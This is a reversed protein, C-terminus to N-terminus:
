NILGGDDDGRGSDLMVALFAFCIAGLIAFCYIPQSLIFFWAVAVFSIVFTVLIAITSILGGGNKIVCISYLWVVVALAITLAAQM